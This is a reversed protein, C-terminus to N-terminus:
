KGKRRTNRSIYILFVFMIAAYVIVTPIIDFDHPSLDLFKLM